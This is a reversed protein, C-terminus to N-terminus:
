RRGLLWRLLQHLWSPKEEIFHATVSVDKNMTIQISRMSGTADGSWHSFAYGQGPHARLKVRHGAPYSGGPPTVTGGNPPQARVQLSCVDEDTAPLVRIKMVKGPGWAGALVVDGAPDVAVGKMYDNFNIGSANVPGLLLDQIKKGSAGDYLAAYYQDESLNMGTAIITGDPLVDTGYLFANVDDRTEWQMRLDSSFRMLYPTINGIETAETNGVVHFSKEPHRAIGAAKKNRGPPVLYRTWFGRRGRFTSVVPRVDSGDRYYGSVVVTGDDDVAADHYWMYQGKKRTRAWLIAGNSGAIKMALAKLTIKTPHLLTVGIGGQGVLYIDNDGDVTVGMAHNLARRVYEQSWIVTGDPRYKQVMIYIRLPETRCYSGAVIIDDTDDVVVDLFAGYREEQPLAAPIHADANEAVSRYTQIDLPKPLATDSWEVDGHPGYKVVVGHEEDPAVGCAYINSRSDVAVGSFGKVDPHDHGWLIDYNYTAMDERNM